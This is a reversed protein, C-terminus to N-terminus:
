WNLEDVIEDVFQDQNLTLVDKFCFGKMKDLGFLTYRKNAKKCLAGARLEQPTLQVVNKNYVLVFVDSERSSDIQRGLISNLIFLSDKAKNLVNHQEARANGNKFEILYNLDDIVLADVSSAREESEGLQNLFATKVADFDIVKKTCLTMYKVVGNSSDKSTEQLSCQKNQLIDYDNINIM